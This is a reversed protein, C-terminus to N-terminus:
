ISTESRRQQALFSTSLSRRPASLGCSTSLSRRSSKVNQLTRRSNIQLSRRKPTLQKTKHEPRNFNRKRRKKDAGNRSSPCKCGTCRIMPINSSPRKGLIRWRRYNISACSRLYTSVHHVHMGACCPMRWDLVVSIGVCIRFRSARVGQLYLLVHIALSLGLVRSSSFSAVQLQRKLVDLEINLLSVLDRNDRRLKRTAGKRIM